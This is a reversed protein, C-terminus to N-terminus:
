LKDILKELLTDTTSKKDDEPPKAYSWRGQCKLWFQRDDKDGLLADKYLSDALVMTKDMKAKDIEYRYYKRLTKEDIDLYDAIQTQNFGACSFGIVKARSVEDPVHEPSSM